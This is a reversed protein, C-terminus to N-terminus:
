IGPVDATLINMVVLFPYVSWAFTAVVPMVDQVNSM